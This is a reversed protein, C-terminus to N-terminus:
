IEGSVLEACRDTLQGAVWNRRDESAAALRGAEARQLEQVDQVTACKGILAEVHLVWARWGAEDEPLDAEAGQQSAQQDNTARDDMAATKGQQRAGQSSYDTNERPQNADVRERQSEFEMAVGASQGSQDSLAQRTPRATIASQATNQAMEPWLEEAEADRIVNREGKPLTKRFQRLATKIWMQRPWRKWVGKPNGKDDAGAKSSKMVDIVEAATMPTMTQKYGSKLTAVAYVGVMRGREKKIDIVHRIFPNSGRECQFLDHEYVVDPEISIVEGGRLIQQILGLYMPFYQAQDEWRDPNTQIKVSHSALAAEVGDLRLGDYASKICANLISLTTCKLIGPNNRLAQNVTSHFQDWPLDAPLLAEIESRRDVLGRLVSEARSKMSSQENETPANAM